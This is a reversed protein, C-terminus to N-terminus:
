RVDRGRTGDPTFNLEQYSFEPLRSVSPVLDDSAVQDAHGDSFGVSVAGNCWRPSLATVDAGAQFFGRWAHWVQNEFALAKKSPFTPSDVYQLKRVMQTFRNEPLTPSLWAADVYFAVSVSYDVFWDADKSSGFLAQNEPCALSKDGPFLGSGAPFPGASFVKTPYFLYAQRQQITDAGAQRDDFIAPPLGRYDMSYTLVLTNLNRARSLCVTLRTKRRATALVPLLLSVVIAIIGLGVLLEVLSFGRQWTRNAMPRNM